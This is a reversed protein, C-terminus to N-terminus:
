WAAFEILLVKRGRLESLRLVREGDITPLAVDPYLEGVRTGVEQAFLPGRGAVSCLLASSWLLSRSPKM